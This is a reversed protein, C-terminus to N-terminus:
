GIIVKSETVFPFSTAFYEGQRPPDTSTSPHIDRTVQAGANSATKTQLTVAAALTQTECTSSTATPRQLGGSSEAEQTIVEQEKETLTGAQTPEKSLQMVTEVSFRQASKREQPVLLGSKAQEDREDAPNEPSNETGELTQPNEASMDTPTASTNSNEPRSEAIRIRSTNEAPQRRDASTQRHKGIDASAQGRGQTVSDHQEAGVTHENISCSRFVAPSSIQRSPTGGHAYFRDEQGVNLTKEVSGSIGATGSCLLASVLACALADIGM